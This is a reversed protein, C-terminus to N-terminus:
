CIHLLCITTLLAKHTPRKLDITNYPCLINSLLDVATITQKISLQPLTKLQKCYMSVVKFIVPQVKPPLSQLPYGPSAMAAPSKHRLILVVSSFCSFTAKVFTAFSTRGSGKRYSPPVGLYSNRLVFYRFIYSTLHPITVLVFNSTLVVKNHLIHSTRHLCFCHFIQLGGVWKGRAVQWKGSAGPSFCRNILM